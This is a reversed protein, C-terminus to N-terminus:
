RGDGSLMQEAGLGQAAVPESACASHHLARGQARSTTHPKLVSGAAHRSPQQARRSAPLKGSSDHWVVREGGWLLLPQQYKHHKTYLYCM